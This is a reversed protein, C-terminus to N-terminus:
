EEPTTSKLIGDALEDDSLLTNPEVGDLIAPLTFEFPFTIRTLGFPTNKVLDPATLLLEKVAELRSM